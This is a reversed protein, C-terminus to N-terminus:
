VNLLEANKALSASCVAIVVRVANIFEVKYHLRKNVELYSVFKKIHNQGAEHKLPNCHASGV